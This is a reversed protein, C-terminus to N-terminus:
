LMLKCILFEELIIMIIIRLVEQQVELMIDLKIVYVILILKPIPSLSTPFLLLVLLLRVNGNTISKENIDGLDFSKIKQNIQKKSYRLDYPLTSSLFFKEEQTREEPNSAIYNSPLLDGEENLQGYVM